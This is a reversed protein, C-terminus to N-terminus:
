PGPTMSNCVKVFNRSYDWRLDAPTGGLRYFERVTTATKYREYRPYSKSFRGNVIKKKPNMQNFQIRTSEPLSGIDAFIEETEDDSNEEESNYNKQEEENMGEIKEENDKEEQEQM